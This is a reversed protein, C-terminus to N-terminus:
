KDYADHDKILQSEKTRAVEKVTEAKLLLEKANNLQESIVANSKKAM